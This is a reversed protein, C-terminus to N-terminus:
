VARPPSRLTVEPRPKHNSRAVKLSTLEDRLKKYRRLALEEEPTGVAARFRRWLDDKLEKKLDAVEDQFQAEQDGVARLHLQEDLLLARVVPAVDPHREMLMAPDIQAFEDDSFQLLRELLTRLAPDALNEPRLMQRARSLLGRQELLLRLVRRQHRGERQSLPLAAMTSAGDNASRAPRALSLVAQPSVGVLDAVFRVTLDRAAEKRIQGLVPTLADLTQQKGQVSSGHRQALQFVLFELLATADDLLAAFAEPPRRRLFDDPDLQEPLLVVRAELGSNLFLPASRLAAKVGAEDGDFVLLVREAQRGLLKLHEETLATGCTAVAEAFGHQHLRMVDLYGEVLLARKHQRIAALGQSLGFLVRSKHYHRTEPTNLYKPSDAADIVRGGFAIARGREDRIPITVRKRLMDYMRSGTERQRVLGSALLDEHSFGKGLGHGMFGQWQDLAWGLGFAEWDAEEFGRERLYMRAREGEPRRRLLERYYAEAAQLVELSRSGGERPGHDDPLPVGFREALARVAEPFSLREQAMVFDVVSGGAGCGFCHYTRWAPSVRFSPTKEGHFPCLGVYDAGNPRLSVREGIVEVIDARDKVAAIIDKSFAV